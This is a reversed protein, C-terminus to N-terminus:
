PNSMNRTSCVCERPLFTAALRFGSLGMHRSFDRHLDDRNHLASWGQVIRMRTSTGEM